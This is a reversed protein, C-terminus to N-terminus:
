TEKVEKLRSFEWWEKQREHYHYKSSFLDITKYVVECTSKDLRKRMILHM